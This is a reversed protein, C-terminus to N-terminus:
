SDGGSTTITIAFVPDRHRAERGMRSSQGGDDRGMSSAPLITTCMLPGAEADNAYVFQAVLPIRHEKCIAIIQTMLPAIQEDYVAEENWERDLASM